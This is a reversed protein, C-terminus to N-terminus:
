FSLRRPTHQQIKNEDKFWVAQMKQKWNKVTQGKGDKWVRGNDGLSANYYNWAKRAADATYGNETFYAIVDELPPPPATVGGKSKKVNVTGNGNGNVTGNVTSSVSRENSETSRIEVTTPNRQANEMAQQRAEASKRGAERRQEQRVEWTRLDRKLQNKISEFALETVFDAEPDEDSVYAFIHKILVGAQEDSLKNFIGRQDCYLIFSKKGDAM